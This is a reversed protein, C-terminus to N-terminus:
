TSDNERLSGGQWWRARLLQEPLNYGTGQYINQLATRLVDPHPHSCERWRQLFLSTPLLPLGPLHQRLLATAGPDDIGIAWNRHRALAATTAEGDEGFVAALNVMAEEEADSVPSAIALSGAKLIPQLDVQVVKQNEGQHIQLPQEQEYVVRAVMVPVLFAELIAHM